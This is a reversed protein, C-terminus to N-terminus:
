KSLMLTLEVQVFVVEKCNVLKACKTSPSMLNAYLNQCSKRFRKWVKTQIMSKYEPKALKTYQIITYQIIMGWATISGPTLSTCLSFQGTNLLVCLVAPVAEWLPFPVATEYKYSSSFNVLLLRMWRADVLTMRTIPTGLGERNKAVRGNGHIINLKLKFGISWRSLCCWNYIMIIYIILMINYIIYNHIKYVYNHKQPWNWVSASRYYSCPECLIVDLKQSDVYANALGASKSKGLSFTSLNASCCTRPTVESPLWSTFERAGSIYSKNVCMKVRADKWWLKTFLKRTRM